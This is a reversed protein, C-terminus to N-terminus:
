GGHISVFRRALSVQPVPEGDWTLDDRGIPMLHRSCNVTVVPTLCNCLKICGYCYPFSCLYYLDKAAALLEDNWYVTPAARGPAAHQRLVNMLRPRMRRLVPQPM